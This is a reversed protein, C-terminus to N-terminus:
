RLENISTTVKNKFGIYIYIFFMFQFKKKRSFNRIKVDPLM